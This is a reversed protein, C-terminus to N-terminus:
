MRRWNPPPPARAQRSGPAADAGVLFTTLSRTDLFMFSSDAKM